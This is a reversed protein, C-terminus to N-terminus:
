GALKMLATGACAAGIGCPVSNARVNPYPEDHYVLSLLDEIHGGTLLVNIGFAELVKRPAVGADMVILARCDSLLTALKQWRTETHTSAPTARRDVLAFGDGRQAFIWLESAGSLPQNVILGEQSAVAVFNRLPKATKSTPM